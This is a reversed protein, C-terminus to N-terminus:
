LRVPYSIVGGLSRHRLEPAKNKHDPYKIIITRRQSDEGKEIYFTAAARTNIDKLPM